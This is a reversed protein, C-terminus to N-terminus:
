CIINYNLERYYLQYYIEHNHMYKLINSKYKKSDLKVQLIVATHEDITVVVYRETGGFLKLAESCCREVLTINYSYFVINQTGYPFPYSFNKLFLQM